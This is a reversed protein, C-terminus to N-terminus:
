KELLKGKNFILPFVTSNFLSNLVDEYILNKNIDVLFCDQNKIFEELTPDSQTTGNSNIQPKHFILYKDKHNEILASVEKIKSDFSCESPIKEQLINKELLDKVIDLGGIVEGKIFLQPFTKFGHYFKMFGRIKDDKFIDFSRYDVKMGKIVDVFARSFKCFPELPTGKIFIVIPFSDVISKIKIFTAQKEQEFSNKYYDVYSNITKFLFFNDNSQLVEIDPIHPHALAFYPLDQKCSPTLAQILGGEAINSPVLIINLYKSYKSYVDLLLDSIDDLDEKNEQNYLCFLLFTNTLAQREKMYDSKLIVSTFKSEM